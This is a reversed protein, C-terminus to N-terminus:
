AKRARKADGGAKKAANGAGKPTAKAKAKTKAKPAAAKDKAKAKAKAKAEAAKKKTGPSTPPQTTSATAFDDHFFADGFGFTDDSGATGFLGGDFISDMEGFPDRDGFVESFVAFADSSSGDAGDLDDEDGDERERNLGEKGERDYVERQAPTSLVTYAEAIRKFMAEASPRDDPNKDPHWRLAARKYAKRVEEVAADRPIDLLSYYDADVEPSAAAM